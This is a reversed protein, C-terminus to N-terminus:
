SSNFQNNEANGIIGACLKYISWLSGTVLAEDLQGPPHSTGLSEQIQHVAIMSSLTNQKLVDLPWTLM